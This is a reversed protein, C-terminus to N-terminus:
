ELNSHMPIALFPLSFVQDWLLKLFNLEEELTFTAQEAKVHAISEQELDEFIKGIDNEIKDCEDEIKKKENEILDKRKSIMSSENSFEKLKKLQMDKFDKAESARRKEEEIRNM